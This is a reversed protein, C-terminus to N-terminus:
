RQEKPVWQNARENQAALTVTEEVRKARTEPRRALSIWAVIRRREGPPFADWHRRTIEAGSLASVKLGYQHIAEREKRISKRKRSSLAGLFDAFSDYGANAWHYQVGIRHLFGAEAMPAIEEERCFTVHLSSFRSQEAIQRLTNVLAERLVATDNGPRVLLRPGPVPTFPVAVQLM